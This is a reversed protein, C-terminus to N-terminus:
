NIYIYLGVLVGASVLMWDALGFRTRKRNPRPNRNKRILDAYRKREAEHHANLMESLTLQSFEKFEMFGM